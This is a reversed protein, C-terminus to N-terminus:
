VELLSVERVQARRGAGGEVLLTKIEWPKIQARHQVGLAACEFAFETARGSREQLRVVVGDGREARKLAMVWVNGPSLSLFSRERPETGEHASDMVYEAPTQMEEALRDLELAGVAGRGRVLWFRREQRGQDQWANADNHPVQFPDHRAFPASRVLVTRLLGQLCDYSYTSNNILGVTYDEAGARGEVAVWDQYTEEEGNPEREIRGGAVKAFVRPSTLGVPVELKLIQERERWDITFRLEVADIAKFQAIDLVIESNQWRARQRTVRTVPGDEITQSSVFQPRGMEQRFRQVGHGWTDSTDSIVVLGLPAALLERGDASKLSSIGFGRENVTFIETNFPATDPPTGHVLELVKYGFAPVDVWASVRPYVQTMSDSPRWQIAVKQRDATEMHTVPVVGEPVARWPNGGPIKETHYEVLCKRAWPLPNFVFAAGEAVTRTDVRRALSELAEVRNTNATDCARGLQDRSDQYASYLATGALLDHFQNFLVKEWAARYEASPYAHGHQLGAALSLAEAQGLWREARRNLQKGEGHAAYYGRAHHQLEGRVVPLDALAPSKEVAAFFEAVTSFRLEPLTADQRLEILRKLQERTAGGGHDGVGFFYAASSFGPAFSNQAADPIGAANKSYGKYIRLALLRSGDPGEWWFLLPLKMEHAEPRMFVYYRYGARRLLTPLGAAHGFADPNFGIEVNVGLARQFYDKGYLSHRVFSESSPVNCDPEVPWGGVVEWRGEKIRQKVEEFMKPDAREVWAYHHSSSHCYKFDPTERMRDLASRFTTLVLNSGDRWPWLWAADIHSYGVVHMVRSKPNSPAATTNQRAFAPLGAAAGGLAAAGALIFSRRSVAGGDDKLPEKEESM